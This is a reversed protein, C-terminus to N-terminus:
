DVCAPLLLFSVNGQTGRSVLTTRNIETKFPSCVHLKTPLNFMYHFSMLISQGWYQKCILWSWSLSQHMRNLASEITIMQNLWRYFIYHGGGKRGGFQHKREFGKSNKLCPLLSATSRTNATNVTLYLCMTPPQNNIGSRNSQVSKVGSCRRSNWSDINM